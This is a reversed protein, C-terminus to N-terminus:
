QSLYQVLWIATATCALTVALFENKTRPLWNM